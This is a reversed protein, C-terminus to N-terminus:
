TYILTSILCKTGRGIKGKIAIRILLSTQGNASPFYLSYVADQVKRKQNVDFITIQLQIIYISYNSLIQSPFPFVYCDLLMKESLCNFCTDSEALSALYFHTNSSIWSALATATAHLSLNQSDEYRLLHILCKKKM